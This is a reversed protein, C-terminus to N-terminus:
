GRNAEEILALVAGRTCDCAAGGGYVSWCEEQGHELAEVKAGTATTADIADYLAAFDRM